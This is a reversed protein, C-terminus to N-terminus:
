RLGDSQSTLANGCAAYRMMPERPYFQVNASSVLVYARPVITDSQCLYCLMKLHYFMIIQKEHCDRSIFHSCWRFDRPWYLFIVNVHNEHM